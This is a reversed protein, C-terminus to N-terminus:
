SRWSEEAENGISQGAKVGNSINPLGTAAKM